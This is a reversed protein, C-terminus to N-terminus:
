FTDDNMGWTKGPRTDPEDEGFRELVPRGAQDRLLIEIRREAQGLREQCERSLKVGEEFLRLSEELPVDGHELERVIQELAGLSAEFTQTKETKKM